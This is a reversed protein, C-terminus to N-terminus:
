CLPQVITILRAVGVQQSGALAQEASQLDAYESLPAAIPMIRNSM